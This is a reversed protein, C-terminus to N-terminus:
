SLIKNEWRNIFNNWTKYNISSKNNDLYVKRNNLEHFETILFTRHSKITKPPFKLFYKYLNLHLLKSNAKWIYHGNLRKDFYINGGIVNLLFEINSRSKNSISITLQFRFKDQYYSKYINISGDSDLLGSIYASNIDPVIPDKIPINLALCAKHLQVLRVNNIVLGNLCQIINYMVDRRQTRYRVAKLGGRAHVTGGFKNQIIRLVKEDHTPLTLEFGVFDKKNKNVYIYGDGDTLGAFWQKFKLSIEKNHNNNTKVKLQLNNHHNINNSKLFKIDIAHGWKGRAEGRNGQSIEADRAKESTYLLASTWNADAVAEFSAHDVTPRLPRLPRLPSRTLIRICILVFLYAFPPNKYIINNTQTRLTESIGVLLLCYDNYNYNYNFYLYNIIYNSFNNLIKTIQQNFIEYYYKVIVPNINDIIYKRLIVIIFLGSVIVTKNHIKILYLLNIYNIINKWCIACIFTISVILLIVKPWSLIKQGLLNPYFFVLVSLVLFFAFITVLDKFIFYPHMAKRDGNSTVGNPNNSGHEHLM